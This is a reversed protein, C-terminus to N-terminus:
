QCVILECSKTDIKQRALIHMTHSYWFFRRGNERDRIWIELQKDDVKTQETYESVKFNWYKDLSPDNKEYDYNFTQFCLTTEESLLEVPIKFVNISQPIKAYDYIGAARWTDIILQPNIPSIHLVDNWLCDLIPIKEQLLFERGKYKKVQEEYITPLETKLVNLPMLIEGSMGAPRFHYVYNKM